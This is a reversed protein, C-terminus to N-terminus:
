KLLDVIRTLMGRAIQIIEANAHDLQAARQREIPAWQVGGGSEADAVSASPHTPGRTIRKEPM